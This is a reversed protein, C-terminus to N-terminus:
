EEWLAIRAEARILAKQARKKDISPDDSELYKKARALAKKAREIDIDKKLNFASVILEIENESVHLVGDGVYAKIEKDDVYFHCISPTVGTLLPFHHPLITIYGTTSKINLSEVEGEYKIGDPAIAKFIIAM